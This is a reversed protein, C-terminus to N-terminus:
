DYAASLNSRRFAEKTITCSSAVGKNVPYNVTVTGDKNFKATSKIPFILFTPENMEEIESHTKPLEYVAKACEVHIIECWDDNTMLVIEDKDYRQRKSCYWWRAYDRHDGEEDPPMLVMYVNGDKLESADTIKKLKMNEKYQVLM